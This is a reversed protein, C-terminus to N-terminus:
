NPERSVSFPRSLTVSELSIFCMDPLTLSPTIPSSTTSGSPAEPRAGQRRRKSQDRRSAETHHGHQSQTAHPGRGQGARSLDRRVSLRENVTLLRSQPSIRHKPRSADGDPNPAFSDEAVQPRPSTQLRRRDPRRQSPRRRKRQSLHPGSPRRDQPPRHRGRHRVTEPAGTQQAMYAASKVPASSGSRSPRM